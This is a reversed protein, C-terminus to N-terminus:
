EEEIPRYVIVRLQGYHEAQIYNRPQASTSHANAMVAITARHGPVWSSPIQFTAHVSLPLHHTIWTVNMGTSQGHRSYVNAGDVDKAWMNAGVGVTYPLESIVGILASADVVDGPNLPRTTVRYFVRTTGAKACVPLTSARLDTSSYLGRIKVPGSDIEDAHAISASFLTAAIAAMGLALYRRMASGGVARTRWIKGKETTFVSGDPGYGILDQEVRDDHETCPITPESDAEEVSPDPALFQVHAHSLDSGGHEYRAPETEGSAGRQPTSPSWQGGLPDSSGRCGM